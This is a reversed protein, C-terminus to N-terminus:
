GSSGIANINDWPANFSHAAAYAAMAGPLGAYSTGLRSNIWALFRGNFSGSAVGEHDFLASWDGNYDLTTSTIVRVAKQRAEQNSYIEFEPTPPITASYGHVFAGADPTISFNPM